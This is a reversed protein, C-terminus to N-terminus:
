LYAQLNLVEEAKRTQRNLRVPILFIRGKRILGSMFPDKLMARFTTAVDVNTDGSIFLNRPRDTVLNHSDMVGLGIKYQKVATYADATSVGFQQGSIDYKGLIRGDTSIVISDEGHNIYQHDKPDVTYQFAIKRHLKWTLAQTQAPTFDALNQALYSKIERNLQCNPNRHTIQKQLQLIKRCLEPFKAPDTFSEGFQGFAVIKSATQDLESKYNEILRTTSLRQSNQRIELGMTSTDYLVPVGVRLLPPLGKEQRRENYFNAIAKLTIKEVLLLNADEPSQAELIEKVDGPDLIEKLVARQEILPALTIKQEPSANQIQEETLALAQLLLDNAACGNKGKGKSDYHPKPIELLDREAKKALIECLQTSAPIIQGDSQRKEVEITGAATEWTNIAFSDFARVQRGDICPVEAVEAPGKEEQEPRRIQERFQEGHLIAVMQNHRQLINIAHQHSELTSQHSFPREAGTRGWVKIHFDSCAKELQQDLPQEATREPM